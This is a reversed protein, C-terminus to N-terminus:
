GRGGLATVGHPLPELGAAACTLEAWATLHPGLDTTVPSLSARVEVEAEEAESAIGGFSESLVRTVTGSLSHYGAGHNGLADRLWAWGVEALLPDNGMEAELRARALMVIRFTGRWAAPAEPDHLVVFRGSGIQSEPDDDLSVEGTLAVAFPAIRTPPPVEQLRLEARQRHGRLSTLAERFEAPATLQEGEVVVLSLRQERVRPPARRCCSVLRAGGAYGVGPM